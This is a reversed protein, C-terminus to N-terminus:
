DYKRKQFWTANLSFGLTFRIVNERLSKSDKNGRSAFEVGTNLVAFDSRLSSIPLGAGFTFGFESRKSSQLNVFDPGIFAGARYQIQDRFRRSSAADKYPYYQVGTKLRWNNKVVDKNDNFRYNDWNTMEFDVGYIWNKSLNTFGVAYTAPLIISGELEPRYFVTDIASIEGTGNFTVTQNIISQRSKLKNQFNAYAGLRLVGQKTKIDYLLGASLAGGGFTANTATNSRYYFVSDNIFSIQTSNDKSGFSYGGTLGFSFNKIRFGTSLSAQSLGGTGEYLTSMSDVGALRSHDEIKYNIRTLPRIGFSFGWSRNKSEMKRSAVPVGFQLYSIVTNTSTFKKPSTNSKLTRRDVEGGIDLITKRVIALSAPNVFNLSFYDAYGASIGGMSRNVMNQSPVVDGIGYRSYPSNEQASATSFIIIFLILALHKKLLATTLNALHM